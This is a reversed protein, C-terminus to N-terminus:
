ANTVETEDVQQLRLSEAAAGKITKAMMAAGDDDALRKRLRFLTKYTGGDEDSDKMMQGQDVFAEFSKILYHRLTGARPKETLMTFSEPKIKDVLIAAETMGKQSPDDSKSLAAASTVLLEMAEKLTVNQVAESMLAQQNTYACTLIAANCLGRILKPEVGQEKLLDKRKPMFISEREPTFALVIGEIEVGIIVVGFNVAMERAVFKTGGANTDYANKLDKITQLPLRRTPALGAAIIQTANAVGDRTIEM